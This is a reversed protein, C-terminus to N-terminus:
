GDCFVGNFGWLVRFFWSINLVPKKKYLYIKGFLAKCKSISMTKKQISRVNLSFNSFRIFPVDFILTCHFVWSFFWFQWYMHWRIETQLFWPHDNVEISPLSLLICGVLFFFESWTSEYSFCDIKKRCLIELDETM